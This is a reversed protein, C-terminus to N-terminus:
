DIRELVLRDKSESAAVQASSEDDWSGWFWLDGSVVTAVIYKCPNEPLNNVRAKANTKM